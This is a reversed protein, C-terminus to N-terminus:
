LYEDHGGEEDYNVQLGEACRVMCAREQKAAQGEPVVEILCDFCAGIGCYLGRRDGRFRTSRWSYTGQSLLYAALTSGAPVEKPQGNFIVTVTQQKM